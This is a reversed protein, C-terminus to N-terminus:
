AVLRREAGKRLSWLAGKLLDKQTLAPLLPEGIEAYGFMGGGEDTYFIAVCPTAEPRAPDLRLKAEFVQLPRAGRAQVIHDALFAIATFRLTPADHGTWLQCPHQM